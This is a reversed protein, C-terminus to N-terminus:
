VFYPLSFFCDSLRSKILDFAIVQLETLTPICCVFFSYFGKVKWKWRSLSHPFLPFEMVWSLFLLSQQIIGASVEKGHCWLLSNIIEAHHTLITFDFVFEEETSDTDQHRNQCWQYKTTLCKRFNATTWPGNGTSYIQGSMPTVSIPM